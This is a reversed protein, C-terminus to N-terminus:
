HAPPAPPADDDPIHVIMASGEVAHFRRTLQQHHDGLDIDIHLEGDDAPLAAQFRVPGILSGPLAARHFTAFTENNIVVGIDVARIKPQESAFALEISTHTRQQKQCNDRVLLGIALFFAIPALRKRILAYRSV